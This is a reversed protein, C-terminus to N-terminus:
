PEPANIAILKEQKLEKWFDKPIRANMSVVNAISQEPKSAGPIVAAVISPAAAFQLAATRLDTGYKQAIASIKSRKELMGAPITNGYNFRDIGALFGANLPAGIVAPVARKELAPLVQELAHEHYVLSYQIAVLMINPDAVELTKLIPEPTNVGLGWAKIIGEERMKTLEPMAGKEAVKFHDLWTGNMDSTDPSLDHIYVIDLSSLGLRQLSDEISRRIGSASYDYKYKFNLKGKWLNSPNPKFDPDAEFIRGVKTSIIFDERKQHFLFHGLRRESLGYGYFPSTDYYRVGSDWAGEYAAEIQSDTNVHFANGAAVGGLGFRDPLRFGKPADAQSGAAEKDYSGGNGAAYALNALPALATVASAM